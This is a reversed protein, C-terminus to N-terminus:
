GPLMAAHLGRETAAIVRDPQLPDLLLNYITHGALGGSRWTAGRDPSLWLGDEETSAWLWLAQGDPLALEGLRLVTTVPMSTVRSWSAGYDRSVWLGDAAGAWIAGDETQLLSHV